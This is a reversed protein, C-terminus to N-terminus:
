IENEAIVDYFNLKADRSYPFEEPLIEYWFYCNSTKFKLYIVNTDYINRTFIEIEPFKKKISNITEELNIESYKFRSSTSNYRLKLTLLFEEFYLRENKQEKYMPTKTKLFYEKAKTINAIKEKEKETFNFKELFSKIVYKFIQISINQNEVIQLLHFFLYKKANREDYEITEKLWGRLYYEDESEGQFKSIIKEHEEKKNHISKLKLGSDELIKVIKKMILNVKEVPFNETFQFVIIQGEYVPNEHNRFIDEFIVEGKENKYKKVKTGFRNGHEERSSFNFNGIKQLEPYEEAVAKFIKKYTDELIAQVLRYRYNGVEIIFRGDKIELKLISPDPNQHFKAIEEDIIEYKELIVTEKELIDIYRLIEKAKPIVKIPFDDHNFPIKRILDALQKSLETLYLDSYKRGIILALGAIKDYENQPGLEYYIDHSMNIKM